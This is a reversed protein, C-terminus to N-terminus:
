KDITVQKAVNKIIKNINDIQEKQTSGSMSNLVINLYKDNHKSHPNNYDPYKDQWIKIQKMNKNAVEKIANKITTKDHTEKIWEDNNKVYFVERKYDSCHIPRYHKNIKGLNDIFIQSIGEVYGVKGTNELDSLQVEISEIFERMNLADKCEENLFVQLNFTKNNNNNFSNSSVVMNKSSMEIIQQTLETNKSIVDLVANTLKDIKENYQSLLDNNVSEQEKEKEKDQELVTKCCKKKHKCLSSMHIYSNGCVCSYLQPMNPSLHSLNNAMTLREHKKTKRHKNFDKLSSTIYDCNICQFYQPNKPSKKNAEM